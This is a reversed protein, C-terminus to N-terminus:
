IHSVLVVVYTAMSVITMGGPVLIEIDDPKTTDSFFLTPNPVSPSSFGYRGFAPFVITQTSFEVALERYNGFQLRVQNHTIAIQDMNKLMVKTGDFSENVPNKLSFLFVAADTETGVKESLFREGNVGSSLLYM